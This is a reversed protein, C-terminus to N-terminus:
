QAGAAFYRGTGIIIGVPITATFTGDANAVVFQSLQNKMDTSFKDVIANSADLGIAAAIRALILFLIGFMTGFYENSNADIAAVQDDSLSSFNVTFANVDTQVTAASTRMDNSNDTMPNYLAVFANFDDLTIIGGNTRAKAAMATLLATAPIKTNAFAATQATLAAMDDALGSM